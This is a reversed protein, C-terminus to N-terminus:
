RDLSPWSSSVTSAGVAHFADRLAVSFLISIQRIYRRVSWSCSSVGAPVTEERYDQIYTRIMTRIDSYMGDDVFIFM